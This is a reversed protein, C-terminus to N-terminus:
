DREPGRKGIESPPLGVQGMLGMLAPSELGAGAGGQTWLSLLSFM